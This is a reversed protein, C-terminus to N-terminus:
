YPSTLDILLSSFSLSSQELFHTVNERKINPILLSAFNGVLEMFVNIIQSLVRLERSGILPQLSSRSIGSSDAGSSQNSGLSEVPKPVSSSSANINESLNTASKRQLVSYPRNHSEVPKSVQLTPSKVSSKVSDSYKMQLNGSNLYCASQPIDQDTQDDDGETETQLAEFRNSTEIGGTVRSAFDNNVSVKGSSRSHHVESHSTTEARFQKLAAAYSLNQDVSLKLVQKTEQFAKCGHFAASHHGNCNSCKFQSTSSVNDTSISKLTCENFDHPLGCRVCKKTSRCNNEVHDFGNCRRCRRPNPYYTKLNFRKFGIYVFDSPQSQFSLIVSETPQLQGEVHRNLRKVHLAGTESKIVDDPEEVSVGHIIRKISM